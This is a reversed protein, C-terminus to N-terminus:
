LAMAVTYATFRLACSVFRSAVTISRRVLSSFSASWSGLFSSKM